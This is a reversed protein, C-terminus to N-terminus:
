LRIYLNSEKRFESLEKVIIGSKLFDPLIMDNRGFSGVPQM